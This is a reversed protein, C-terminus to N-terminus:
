RPKRAVRKTSTIPNKRKRHIPPRPRKVTITRNKAIARATLTSFQRRYDELQADLDAIRADRARLAVRDAALEKMLLSIQERAEALARERVRAALDWEKERLEVSHARAETDRHLEELRARAASDEVKATQLALRLAQEWQAVAAEALEPPLRTLAVPDGANLAAQDKWFRRLSDTLHNPSGRGLAKRVADITPREGKMMLARAAREIEGYSVSPGRERTVGYVLSESM